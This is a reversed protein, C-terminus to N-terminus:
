LELTKEGYLIIDKIKPNNNQFTIAIKVQDAKLSVPFHIRSVAGHTSFIVNSTQSDGNRNTLIIDVHDGSALNLGFVVTIGQINYVDKLDIFHTTATKSVGAANNGSTTPITYLKSNVGAVYIIGPKIEANLASVTTARLAFSWPATYASKTRANLAGYMNIDVDGWLLANGIRSTHKPNGPSHDSDFDLVKQPATSYNFVYLANGCFAYITDGIKKMARVDTEPINFMKEPKTSAGDWFYIKTQGKVTGGTETSAGIILRYGDDEFATVVFSRDLTLAALTLAEANDIKAVKYANGIWHIDQWYHIPKFATPELNSGAATIADNDFTTAFDWTGIELYNGASGLDNIYYLKETGSSNKMTFGNILNVVADGNTTQTVANDAITIRYFDGTAGLAYFYTINRPIITNIVQDVVGGSIDTEDGGTQLLGFNASNLSPDVFPNIGDASSFIGSGEIHQGVGIGSLWEKIGLTLIKKM